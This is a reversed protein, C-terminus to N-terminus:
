AISKARKGHIESEQFAFYYYPLRLLETNMIEDIIAMPGILANKVAEAVLASETLAEPKMVVTPIGNAEYADKVTSEHYFSSSEVHIIVCAKPKNKNPFSRHYARIKEKLNGDTHCQDTVFIDIDAEFERAAPYLVFCNTSGGDRVGFLALAFADRVFRSPIPLIRGQSGFIGWRFNDEPNNVCEAIISGKDIAFDRVGQMSGSDDLHLFIKGINGVQEKRKQSRVEKMMNAIGESATKTLTEVRDLATKAESIKNKYLELVESDNLLGLDEFTKRLIVAQNGQAQELIAVAVVPTMKEKLAGLVPLIPLKEKRIKEAVELDTLNSFDFQSKRIKLDKGTQGWRLIQAIEDSPSLRLRRYLEKYMEKMGARVIGEVLYPNNERYWLYKKFALRLARSFHSAENYYNPVSFKLRAFDLVRLVNKPDLSHLAASGIHRLEPKKFESGPSFPLGNASSLSSAFATAVKLDKAKSNKIVYSTLHALFYPDVQGLRILEQIIPLAKDEQLKNKSYLHHCGDVILQYAKLREESPLFPLREIKNSM